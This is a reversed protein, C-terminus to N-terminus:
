NVDHSKYLRLGTRSAKRQGANQPGDVASLNQSRDGRTAHRSDSTLSLTLTAAGNPATRRQESMDHNPNRCIVCCASWIRHTYVCRRHPVGCVRAGCGRRGRGCTLRPWRPRLWRPSSAAPARMHRRHSICCCRRRLRGACSSSPARGPKTSASARPARPRTDISRSASRWVGSSRVRGFFFNAGCSGLVCSADGIMTM